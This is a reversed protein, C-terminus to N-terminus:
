IYKNHLFEEKKQLLNKSRNALKKLPNGYYMTWPALNTSILSLAGVSVGEGIVTNPLVVSNAGIIVHENIIVKGKKFTKYENPITPNTLSNGSYDDTKSYIKVGQSLGSFDKIEVGEGALIHAFAGIHVHSGIALYGQDSVILSCFADVIVNNGITIKDVGVIVCNKAIKVNSGISKFGFSILEHEHYYGINFPNPKVM